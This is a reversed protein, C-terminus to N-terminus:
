LTEGKRTAEARYEALVEDAQDALADLEDLLAAPVTRTKAAPYQRRGRRGRRKLDAALGVFRDLLVLLRSNSM